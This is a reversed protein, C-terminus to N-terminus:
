NNEALDKMQYADIKDRLMANDNFFFVNRKPYQWNHGIALLKFGAQMLFGALRQSFIVIQKKNNKM